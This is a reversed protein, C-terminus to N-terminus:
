GSHAMTLVNGLAIWWTFAAGLFGASLLPLAVVRPVRAAVLVVLGFAALRLLASVLLGLTLGHAAILSAVAPTRESYVHGPTSLAAYTTCWDAALAATAFSILALGAAAPRRLYACV